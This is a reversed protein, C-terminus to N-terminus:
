AAFGISGQLAQMLADQSNNPVAANAKVRRMFLKIGVLEASDGPAVGKSMEILQNRFWNMATAKQIWDPNSGKIPIESMTDLPIGTPLGIDVLTTSGDQMVMPIQITPNLWVQADPKNYGGRNNAATPAAGQAPAAGPANSPDFNFSM